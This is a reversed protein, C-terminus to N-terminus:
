PEGFALPAPADPQTPADPFADRGGIADLRSWLAELDPKIPELVVSYGDRRVRVEDGEFRFAKPLRVAQSGGHMFLKARVRDIPAFRGGAEELDAM